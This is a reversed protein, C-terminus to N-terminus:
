FYFLMSVSGSNYTKQLERSRAVDVRLASDNGIAVRQELGATVPTDRQGLFYRLSRAYGHMRWRPTIDFLIGASAGAGLAYGNELNKNFRSSGDFLAYCLATNNQNSWAGGAGGDLSFALPEGGNATRVRQWGAAIKWSMSQFFDDRPTLSLINVPTFREVRTTGFDYHRLALSFFEIQAGRAYGGDTDLIDHYTARAQLEQFNNKGRRGVGLTVRSSGHGQDPRVTPVTVDPTQAVADLDSRATLLERALIAPDAMDNQGITRRYSVYDQGTELVAAVRDGPLATLESDNVSIRRVSLDKVIKREQANLLKLSHHLLTANSPRYVVKRLLEPRRTIARVTDAPIVGWRFQGTFDLEPRAVQLLGLLHYSCNEDFFFYQFYASGLEWAHMLVRDVEEPTLNLQYEWLDRNELDSYERVKVYYPLISFAGPYGGLLGNMAFLLGNSENTNAAFNVAYALLRTHEDQDKADVRMLTHGYMSSPSNLYASAFILTLGSPDLAAHWQNYRKCEKPPLRQTDFALRENLWAYRAVFLCQPNQQENSEEIDSYFSALTAELESQPNNKGDPANYFLPSDVLGHVSSSILNPAFHLLKKWEPREALRLQKSKAILEALYASDATAFAPAQFLFLVAFVVVWIARM